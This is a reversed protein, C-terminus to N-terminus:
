SATIYVFRKFAMKPHSKQTFYRLYATTKQL